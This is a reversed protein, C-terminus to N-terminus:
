DYLGGVFVGEKSAVLGTLQQVSMKKTICATDSIKEEIYEDSIAKGSIYFRMEKNNEIKMSNEIVLGDMPRLVDLMIADATPYRGAGQGVLSLDGLYESHVVTCNNNLSVSAYISSNSVLMPMVYANSKDGYGILRVVMDNERCYNITAEDIYRIGYVPVQEPSIHTNFSVNCSLCIKYRTDLGDVDASYDLEAYGLEIAKDLCTKFDLNEKFIRDLIYNTTGNFIGSISEITDNHKLDCLTHLWPIGGAVAAEFSIFCNNEKALQLFEEYHSAVNAKNSTIVSIGEKLSAKIYDYAVPINPLCEIIVDPKADLVDQMNKTFRDGTHVIDLIKVINHNKKAEEVVGRGVVGYGLLGINM